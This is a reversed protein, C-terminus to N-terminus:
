NLQSVLDSLRSSGSWKKIMNGQADVQVMTHQTTVGYKAKLATETDYDTKLITVDEPINSLNKEIDANLARCGPCWSAHFFLVVRGEDALSLKSEAYSEYSGSKTQIDL